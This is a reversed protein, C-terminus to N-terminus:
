TTHPVTNSSINGKSKSNTNKPPKVKKQRIKCLKIQFAPFAIGNGNKWRLLCNLYYSSDDNYIQYSNRTKKVTNFTDLDIDIKSTYFKDTKYLLYIKDEQSKKLYKKLDELKLDTKDIFNNITARSIRNCGQYFIKNETSNNFKSSKPCGKYYEEQLKLMCEPKNNNIDKLYTTLTPKENIELTNCLKNKDNYIKTLGNTYFYEEFSNELFVSPKAPSVFQPLQTINKSNYKFEFKITTKNKKIKLPENYSINFSIDYNNCRGAKIEAKEIKVNTFNNKEYFENLCSDLNTKFKSWDDNKFYRKPINNNFYENLILERIKNSEDNKSRSSKVNFHNIDEIKISNTMKIM